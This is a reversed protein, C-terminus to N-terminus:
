SSTSGTSPCAGRHSVSPSTDPSCSFYPDYVYALRSLYAGVPVGLIPDLYTGSHVVLVALM